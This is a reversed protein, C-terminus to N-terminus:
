KNKKIPSGSLGIHGGSDCKDNTYGFGTLGLPGCKNHKYCYEIYNSLRTLRIIDYDDYDIFDDFNIKKM